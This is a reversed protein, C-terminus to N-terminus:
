VGSEIQHIVHKAPGAIRRATQNHVSVCSTALAAQELELFSPCRRHNRSIPLHGIPGSATSRLTTPARGDDRLLLHSIPPFVLLPVSLKCSCCGEVFFFSSLVQLIDTWHPAPSPFHSVTRQLAWPLLWLNQPRRPELASSSLAGHM